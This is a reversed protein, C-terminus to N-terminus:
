RAQALPPTLTGSPHAGGRYLGYKHMYQEVAEPVLYRVSLGSRVRDRIQTSSIDVGPARLIQIRQLYTGPLVEPLRELSCGPRPVVAFRCLQVLEAHRHWTLLELAADAGIIFHLEAGPCRALVSTVTDYSYSRGGREIELRSVEFAPNSATALLVMAYRHEASSVPAQHKHPPDGAPIWLVRQLGLTGRACEAAMLHGSHVPDFTGGMLGLRVPLPADPIGSM